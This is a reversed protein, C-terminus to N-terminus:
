AHLGDLSETWVRVNTGDSYYATIEFRSSCDAKDANGSYYISLDMAVEYQQGRAVTYMLIFFFLPIIKKM